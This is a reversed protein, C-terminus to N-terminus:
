SSLAVRVEGRGRDTLREKHKLLQRDLKDVLGDIAAYMDQGGCEAHVKKGSATITAEAHHELKAISLVLHLDIMQDFHKEVRRLKDNAYERLADTIELQRGTLTLQM